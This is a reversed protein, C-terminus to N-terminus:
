EHVEMLHSFPKGTQAFVIVRITTAYTDDVEVSRPSNTNEDPPSNNQFPYSEMIQHLQPIDPLRRGTVNPLNNLRLKRMIDAKIAQIRYDRKVDRISCQTCNGAALSGNVVLLAEDDVTDAIRGETGRDDAAGSSGSPGNSRTRSQQAEVGSSSILVIVVITLVPVFLDRPLHRHM